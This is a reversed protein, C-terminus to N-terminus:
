YHVALGVVLRRGSHIAKGAVDIQYAVFPRIARTLRYEAGVGVRFLDYMEGQDPLPVSHGQKLTRVLFASGTLSFRRFPRVALETTTRLQTAGSDPFVRAGLQLTLGVPGRSLGLQYDPEVAWQGTGLAPSASASGTPAILNLSVSDAFARTQRLGFNLGVEQDQLGGSSETVLQGHHMRTSSAEGARLDYELSLRHGLGHVGLLRYQTLDRTSAPQTDLSFADPSFAEDAHFLRVMPKVVGNGASPIWPEAAASAAGLLVATAAIVALGARRSRTRTTRPM